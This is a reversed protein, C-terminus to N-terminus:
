KKKQPPPPPRYGCVLCDLAHEIRGLRIYSAWLFVVGLFVAALLFAIVFLVFLVEDPALM